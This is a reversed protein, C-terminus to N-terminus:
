IKYKNSNDNKNFIYIYKSKINKESNIINPFLQDTM